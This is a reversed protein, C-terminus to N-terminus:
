SAAQALDADSPLHHFEPCLFGREQLLQRFALKDRLRRVADVRCQGAPWAARALLAALEVGSDDVALVADLSGGSSGRLLPTRRWRPQDFPLAFIPSMGLLPALRHCYDAAAVIEVDLARAAALFDDNRYGATPLLLLVRMM